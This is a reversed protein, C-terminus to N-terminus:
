IITNTARNNKQVKRDKRKRYLKRCYYNCFLGEEKPNPIKQGEFVEKECHKCCGIKKGSIKYGSSKPAELGEYEENKFEELESLEATLLDIQAHIEDTPLGFKVADISDEYLERLQARLVRSQKHDDLERLEM